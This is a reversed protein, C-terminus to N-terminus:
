LSSRRAGASATCGPARRRLLAAAALASPELTAAPAGGAAARQRGVGPPLGQRSPTAVGSAAFAPLPTSASAWDAGSPLARRAAELRNAAVADLDRRPPGLTRSKWPRGGAATVRDEAVSISSAAAAQRATGLELLAIASDVTDERGALQGTHSGTAVGCVSRSRGLVRERRAPAAQTATTGSPGALTAATFIARPASAADGSWTLGAGPDDSACWAQAAFM